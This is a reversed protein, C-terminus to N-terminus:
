FWDIGGKRYRRYAAVGGLASLALLTGAVVAVPPGEDDNNSATAIENTRPPASTVFDGFTRLTSTTELGAITTSPGPNIPALAATTPTGTVRRTTTPRRPATTPTGGAAPPAAPPANVSHTRRAQVALFVDGEGSYSATATVFGHRQTVQWVARLDSNLPRTVPGNGQDDSFQIPAKPKFEPPTGEWILLQFTYDVIEGDESVEKNANLVARAFGLKDESAKFADAVGKYKTSFFHPQLALDFEVDNTIRCSADEGCAAQGLADSPPDAQLTAPKTVNDMKIDVDGTPPTDSDANVVAAFFKTVGTPQEGPKDSRWFLLVETDAAEAKAPPANAIIAVAVVAFLAFKSPGWRM